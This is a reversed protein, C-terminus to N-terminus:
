DTNQNIIPLFIANVNDRFRELCFDQFRRRANERIYTSQVAGKIIESTRGVLEDIIKWLFGNMGDTIIESQGGKDIVIPICGASMAEVTTMGFHEVKEPFRKEDVGFGAAHWFISAENYLRQLSKFSENVHFYIPYSTNQDKLQHLMRQTTSDAAASGVIHYEWGHLNSRCLRRFAETMVDYRKENYLGTFFRGVSLIINKKQTGGQFFDQIPPYLIRSEVGFNRYLTDHVFKSYTLVFDAVDRSFKLLKLRLIDKISEKIHGAVLKELISSVTIKGYPIQLIQVHKQASTVVSQFNSLYIFVDANKAIECLENHNHFIRFNIKSLHVNSFEELISRQIPKQNFLLTINVNPLQSLVDALILLYKEGGGFTSWYPTCISINKM